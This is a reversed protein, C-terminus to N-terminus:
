QGELASTAPASPTQTRSWEGVWWKDIGFAGWGSEHELSTSRYRDAPPPDKPDSNPPNGSSSSGTSSTSSSTALATPFHTSFYSVHEAHGLERESALISDRAKRAAKLDEVPSYTATENHGTATTLRAVALCSLLLRPTAYPDYVPM